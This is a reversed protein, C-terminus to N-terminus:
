MTPVANIAPALEKEARVPQMLRKALQIFGREPRFGLAELRESLPTAYSPILALVPRREGADRLAWALVDTALPWQDPHIQLDIAAADDLRGTRLRGVVKGQQEIVLDHGGRGSSRPEQAAQWEAFTTAEVMRVAQPAVHNYLQYLAHLDAKERPRLSLDLPLPSPSAQGGRYVYLQETAYPVFGAARAGAITDSRSDLRLFLKQTGARAAGASVQSFLQRTVQEPEHDTVILCSIEWANRNGRPRASIVGHLTQGQVTIWTHRHTAFSLWQEVASGWLSPPAEDQALRDWTRAENAFVQGDFSVLAALDTPRVTRTSSMGSGAGHGGM